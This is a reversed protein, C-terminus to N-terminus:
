EQQIHGNEAPWYVQDQFVNQLRQTERGEEGGQLYIHLTLLMVKSNKRCLGSVVNVYQLMCNL